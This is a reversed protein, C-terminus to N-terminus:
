EASVCELGQWVDLIVSKTLFSLLKWNKVLKALLEMKFTQCPESYAETWCVMFVFLGYKAFVFWLVVKLCALYIFRVVPSGKFYGWLHISDFLKGPFSARGVWEADEKILLGM